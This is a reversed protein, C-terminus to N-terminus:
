LLAEFKEKLSKPLDNWEAETFPITKGRTTEYVLDVAHGGGDFSSEYNNKELEEAIKEESEDKFPHYTQVYYDRSWSSYIQHPSTQKGYDLTNSGQDVLKILGNFSSKKSSNKNAFSHNGLGIASIKM